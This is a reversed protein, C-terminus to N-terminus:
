ILTFTTGFSFQLHLVFNIQDPLNSKQNVNSNEIHTQTYTNTQKNIQKNTQTYKM